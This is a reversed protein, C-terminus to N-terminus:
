DKFFSAVDIPEGIVVEGNEVSCSFSHQDSATVNRSFFRFFDVKQDVEITFNIKSIKCKKWLGTLGNKLKTYERKKDLEQAKVGFYHVLRHEIIMGEERKKVEDIISNGVVFRIPSNKATSISIVKFLNYFVFLDNNDSPVSYAVDGYGRHKRKLPRAAPDDTSGVYQIETDIGLDFGNAMLFDHISIGEPKSNKGSQFLLFRGDDSTWPPVRPATGRPIAIKLRRQSRERGIEVYVFLKSKFISYHPQRATSFRVRTRSALFYVFRKDTTTEVEEQLAKLYDSAIKQYDVGAPPTVILDFWFFTTTALEVHWTKELEKYAQHQSVFDFYGRSM